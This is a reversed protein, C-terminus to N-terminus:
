RRRRATRQTTTRSHRGLGEHLGGLQGIGAGCPQGGAGASAGACVGAGGAARDAARGRCRPRARPSRDVRTPAGGFVVMLVVFAVALGIADGAGEGSGSPGPRVGSFEVELGAHRAPEAVRGLANKSAQTIQDLPGSFGLDAFAARDNKSFQASEASAQAGGVTEPVHRAAKVTPAILSRYQPENLPHRGGPASLWIDSVARRHDFTWGGPRYLAAAM